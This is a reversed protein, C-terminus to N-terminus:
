VSSLKAKKENLKQYLKARRMEVKQKETYLKRYEAAAM